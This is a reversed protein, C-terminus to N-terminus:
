KIRYRIILIDGDTQQMTDIKLITVQDKFMVNFEELNSVMIESTLACQQFPLTALLIIIVFVFISKFIRKM